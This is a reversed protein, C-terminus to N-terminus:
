VDFAMIPLIFAPKCYAALFTFSVENKSLSSKRAFVIIPHNTTSMAAIIGKNTLFLRYRTKWSKNFKTTKPSHPPVNIEHNTRTPKIDPPILTQIDKIGITM